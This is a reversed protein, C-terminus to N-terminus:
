FAIHISPYLTAATYMVNYQKTVFVLSVSICLIIVSWYRVLYQIFIPTNSFIVVPM